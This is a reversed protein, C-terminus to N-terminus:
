GRESGSAVYDAADPTFKSGDAVGRDTARASANTNTRTLVADSPDAGPVAINNRKGYVEAADGRPTQADTLATAM